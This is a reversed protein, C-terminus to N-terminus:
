PFGRWASGLQRQKILPPSAAETIVQYYFCVGVLLTTLDCGPDEKKGEEKRGWFCPGRCGAFFPRPDPVIIVPGAQMLNKSNFYYVVINGQICCGTYRSFSYPYNEINGDVSPMTTPQSPSSITYKSSYYERLYAMNLGLSQSAGFACTEPPLHLHHQKAHLSQVFGCTCTLHGQYVLSPYHNHPPTYEIGEKKKEYLMDLQFTPLTAVAVIFSCAWLGTM